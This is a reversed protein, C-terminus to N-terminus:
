LGPHCTRTGCNIAQQTKKQPPPPTTKLSPHPPVLFKPKEYSNPSSPHKNLHSFELRLGLLLIVRLPHYVSFLPNEM